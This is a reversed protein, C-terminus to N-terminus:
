SAMAPAWRAGLAEFSHELGHVFVPADPCTAPDSTVCLNLAGDYSLVAVELPMNGGLPVVPFAELMRAGMAYLPFPPGPVNTVVM